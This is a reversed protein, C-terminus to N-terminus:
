AVRWVRWMRPRTPSRTATRGALLGGPRGRPHGPTRSASCSAAAGPSAALAEWPELGAQSWASSRGPWSTPGRRAAASTPAASSPVGAAQALRVSAQARERRDPSRRRAERAFRPLTTTTAFTLWSKLVALTTVLALRPRGDRRRRGRGARVRARHLRRGGRRLGPRRAAPPTRPSRRGRAHVAQVVPEGRGRHCPADGADPGDLYLKSSTPATTSSASRRRRAARRRRRRSTLGAPLVGAATVWTGAARVYPRDRRGAGATASASASRGSAAASRAAAPAGSTAPGACAPATSCGATPKPWPWCATPRTAAGTSGTRAAPCRSTATATSWARARDHRRKRGRGRLRRAVRGRRGRRAPDLRDPGRDVLISVGLRLRDSRADALAADRYLVSSVRAHGRVPAPVPRPVDGPRAPRAGRRHQDRDGAGLAAQLRGAAPHHRELVRRHGRLRRPVGGGRGPGRTM